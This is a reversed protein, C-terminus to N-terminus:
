KNLLEKLKILESFIQDFNDKNIVITHPMENPNNAQQKITLTKSTKNLKVTTNNKTIKSKTIQIKPNSNKDLNIVEHYVPSQNKAANNAM